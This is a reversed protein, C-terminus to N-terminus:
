RLEALCQKLKVLCAIEDYCIAAKDCLSSYENSVEEDKFYKRLTDIKRQKEEISQLLKRELLIKCNIDNITKIVDLETDSIISKVVMNKIEEAKM